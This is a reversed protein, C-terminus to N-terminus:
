KRKRLGDADGATGGGDAAAEAEELAKVVDNNKEKKATELPTLGEKDTTDLLTKDKALEKAAEPSGHFAAWHLANWGDKDAIAPNAGMKIAQRIASATGKIQGLGALIMLPTWQDAQTQHNCNSSTLISMLNSIDAEAGADWTNLLVEELSMMSSEIKKGDSKNQQTSSSAAQRVL